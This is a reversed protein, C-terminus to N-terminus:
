ICDALSLYVLTFAGSAATLTVKIFAKDSVCLDTGEVGTTAELIAVGDLGITRGVAETVSQMESM